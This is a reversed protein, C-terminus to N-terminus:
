FGTLISSIWSLEMLHHSTYSQYIRYGPDTAHQISHGSNGSMQFPVLSNNLGESMADFYEDFSGSTFRISSDAYIFEEFELLSNAIIYVKWAYIKLDRLKQAGPIYPLKKWDFSRFELGCVANIENVWTENAAVGGLDYLVIHYNQFNQQISRITARVSNYYVSNAALIFNYRRPSTANNRFPKM